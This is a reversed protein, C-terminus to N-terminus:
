FQILTPSIRDTGISSGVCHQMINELVSVADAFADSPVKEEEKEKEKMRGAALAGPFGVVDWQYRVHVGGSLYREWKM